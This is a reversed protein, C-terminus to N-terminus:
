RDYGFTVLASPFPAPRPAGVFQIRGKIYEVTAFPIVYAHWYKTDSRVPVLCCVKVGRIAEEHAKKLWLGTIGRAYPSNLWVRTAHWPVSLADEAPSLFRAVKANERTAAADLDFPGYKRDAYKFVKDPTEWDQKGSGFLAKRDNDNM